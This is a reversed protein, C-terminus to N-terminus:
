YVSLSAEPKVGNVARHVGAHGRSATFGVGNALVTSVDPWVSAAASRIGGGSLRGSARCLLRIVAGGRPRALRDTQLNAKPQGTSGSTFLEICAEKGPAPFHMQGSTVVMTSEVIVLAGDWALAKDSLIGDFLAKQENLLSIRGHGPLVPTKGAHLTALLAVIFLYSNEICLAWRMAPQQRLHTLLHAVDHRLHALTWLHTDQWAIPTEPSRAASLWQDLPLPQKM